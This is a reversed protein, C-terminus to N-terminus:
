HVTISHHGSPACSCSSNELLIVEQGADCSGPKEPISLGFQRNEETMETVKNARRETIWAAVVAAISRKCAPAAPGTGFSEAASKVARNRKIIRIAMGKM